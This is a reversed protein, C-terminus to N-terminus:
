GIRDEGREGVIGRGLTPLRHQQRGLGDFGNLSRTRRDLGPRDRGQIGGPQRGAVVPAGAPAQRHRQAAGSCRISYFLGSLHLDQIRDPMVPQRQLGTGAAKISVVARQPVVHPHDGVPAVRQAIQGGHDFTAQDLGGSAARAV